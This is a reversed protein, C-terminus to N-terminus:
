EMTKGEVRKLTVVIDTNEKYGTQWDRDDADYGTKWSPGPYGNETVCEMSIPEFTSLNLKCGHLLPTISPDAIRCSVPYM